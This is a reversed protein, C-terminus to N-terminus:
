QTLSTMAKATESVIDGPVTRAGTITILTTNSLIIAIPQGLNTGVATNGALTQFDTFGTLHTLDPPDPPITQESITITNNSDSQLTFFLIDNELKASNKKYAYGTPIPSPYYLAFSANKTISAPLPGSTYHMYFFLSGGVIALAVAIAFGSWLGLWRHKQDKLSIQQLQPEPLREPDPKSPPAPSKRPVPHKIEGFNM